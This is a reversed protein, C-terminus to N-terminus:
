LLPEVFTVRIERGFRAGSAFITQLSAMQRRLNFGVHTVLVIKYTSKQGDMNEGLDICSEEILAESNGSVASLFFGRKYQDILLHFQKPHM